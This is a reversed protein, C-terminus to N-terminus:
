VPQLQPLLTEFLALLHPDFSGDDDLMIALAQDAPLPSRYSRASTLADFVDAIHLIRAAYPIAEGSLKDPYGRGDWREHHSRVMPRIDWPFEISALTEYGVIAHREMIRREEDTLRGPKNLIEEPVEIKGVDHLLAGMRFWSLEQEPMGAFRALACAYEAVRQCHGRTYFDKAEISDGWRAVLSLFDAELQEFRKAIDAQEQKAQLTTFLNHARNLAELAERNRDESRLLLALERNTDAETLPHGLESALAIAQRFHSEALHPRGTARYIVGYSKLTDAKLEGNGLRSSIEFAEDCSIRANTLDGLALLLETRNALVIGEVQVDGIARCITLARALTSDARVYDELDTYLMGLNNLVRAIRQRNDTAEYNGLASEYHVLAVRLEGRITAIIGLNLAIDGATQRDGVSIALDNAASFSSEAASIDGSRQYLVGLGNLARASRSSDEWLVAITHALHYYESALERTNRTSYLLGLRLLGELLQDIQGERWGTQFLDEFLDVAAEWHGEKAFATARDVLLQTKHYMSIPHRITYPLRFPGERHFGKATQQRLNSDNNATPSFEGTEVVRPRGPRARLM